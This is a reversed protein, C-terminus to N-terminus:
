DKLTSPSIVETMVGKATPAAASSALKWARVATKFVPNTSSELPIVPFRFATLWTLAKAVIAVMEESTTRRFSVLKAAIVRVPEVPMVVTPALMLEVRM